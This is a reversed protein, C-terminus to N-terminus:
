SISRRYMRSLCPASEVTGGMGIVQYAPMGRSQRTGTRKKMREMSSSRKRKARGRMLRLLASVMGPRITKAPVAAGVARRNPAAPCSTSRSLM